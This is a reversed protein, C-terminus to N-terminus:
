LTFVFYGQPLQPGAFDISDFAVGEPLPTLETIEQSRPNWVRQHKFTLRAKNFNTEYDKPM